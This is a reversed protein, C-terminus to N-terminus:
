PFPTDSWSPHHDHKNVSPFRCTGTAGTRSIVPPKSYVQILPAPFTRSRSSSATRIDRTSRQKNDHTYKRANKEQGTCGRALVPTSPKSPKYRHHPCILSVFGHGDRACIAYKRPGEGQRFKSQVESVRPWNARRTKHIYQM